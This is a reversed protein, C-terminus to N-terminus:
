RGNEIWANLTKIAFEEAEAALWDPQIEEAILKLISVACANSLTGLEESRHIWEHDVLSHELLRAKLRGLDELPLNAVLRRFASRLFAQVDETWDNRPVGPRFSWNEEKKEFVVTEFRWHYWNRHEQSLKERSHPPERLIEVEVPAYKWNAGNLIECVLEGLVENGFAADLNDEALLASRGPHSVVKIKVPDYPSAKTTSFPSLSVGDRRIEPSLLFEIEDGPQPIRTLVHSSGNTHLGHHRPNQPDKKVFFLKM